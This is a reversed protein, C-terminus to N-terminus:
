GLTSMARPEKGGRSKNKTKILAPKGQVAGQTTPPPPLLPSLSSPLESPLLQPALHGWTAPHRCFAELGAHVHGSVPSLSSLTMVVGRSYPSLSVLQLWVWGGPNQLKEVSGLCSAVCLPLGEIGYDVKTWLASEETIHNMAKLCIYKVDSLRWKTKYLSSM